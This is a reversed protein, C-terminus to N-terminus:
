IKAYRYAFNFQMIIYLPMPTFPFPASSYPNVQVHPSSGANPSWRFALTNLSLSEFSVFYKKFTIQSRLMCKYGSIEHNEASKRSVHEFKMQLQHKASCLSPVFVMTNGGVKSSPSPSYMGEKGAAVRVGKDQNLIYQSLQQVYM